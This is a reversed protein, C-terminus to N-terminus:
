LDKLGEILHVIMKKQAIDVDLIFEKVAPIMLEKGQPTKIEYIDQARNQTVRCLEGVLEGQEDCVTCGLLDSVFYTDEPVEWLEEKKIYLKKGKQLEATNRDEIGALKLIVMGKRVSAKEIKYSSEEILVRPIQEFREPIDTYPYVKLEGKIGVVSTVQGVTIIEKM